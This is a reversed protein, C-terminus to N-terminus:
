IGGYPNHFPQTNSSTMPSSSAGNNPTVTIMQPRGSSMSSRVPAPEDIIQTLAQGTLIGQIVDVAVAMIGSNAGPIYGRVMPIGITGVVPLPNASVKDITKQASWNALDFKLADIVTMGRATATASYSMYFSAATAAPMVFKRFKALKSKKGYRKATTKRRAGRRRRPAPDYSRRAHRRRSRRRGRRPAPDYSRRAPKSKRRRRGRRPAPDYLAEEIDDPDFGANELMDAMQEQTEQTAIDYATEFGENFNEDMNGPDLNEPETM